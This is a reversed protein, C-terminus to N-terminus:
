THAHVSGVIVPMFDDTDSCVFGGITDVVEAFVKRVIDIDSNQACLSYITKVHHETVFRLDDEEDFMDAKELYIGAKEGTGIEIVEAELWVETKAALENSRIVVQYLDGVSIDGEAMYYFYQEISVNKEPKKTKGGYQVDGKKGYQRNIKKGTKDASKNGKKHTIHKKLNGNM